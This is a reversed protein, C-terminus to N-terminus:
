LKHIITKLQTSYSDPELQPSTAFTTNFIEQCDSHLPMCQVSCSHLLPRAQLNHMKGPPHTPTGQDLSHYIIFMDHSREVPLSPTRGPLQSHPLLSNDSNLSHGPSAHPTEMTIVQIKVEIPKSPLSLM